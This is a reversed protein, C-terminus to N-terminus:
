FPVSSLMQVMLYSKPLNSSGDNWISYDYPCICPYFYNSTDSTSTINVTANFYYTQPIIYTSNVTSLYYRSFFFSPYDATASDKQFSTSYYMVNPQMNYTYTYPYPYGTQFEAIEASTGTKFQNDSIQQDSLSNSISANTRDLFNLANGTATVDLINNQSVIDTVTTLPSGNLMVDTIITQSSYNSNFFSFCLTIKYIGVNNIYFGGSSDISILNNSTELVYGPIGNVQPALINYENKIYTQITPLNISATDYLSSVIPKNNYMFSNFGSM